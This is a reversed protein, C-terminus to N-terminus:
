FRRRSIQRAFLYQRFSQVIQQHYNHGMPASTLPPPSPPAKVALDFIEASRLAKTFDEKSIETLQVVGSPEIPHLHWLIPSGFDFFVDVSCGAWDRLLACEGRSVSYLAPNRRTVSLSKEFNFRDRKRRLGNVVWIMSRYFKERSQREHSSIASHQFEIVRGAATKVDAIHREGDEAVHVVEQWEIPFKSKWNLHWETEPEWWRDCNHDGRHAWHWIRYDGCKAIMKSGCFDCEGKLGPSAECRQGNVLALRM